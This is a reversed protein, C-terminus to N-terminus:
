SDTKKGNGEEVVAVWNQMLLDAEANTGALLKKFSKACKRLSGRERVRTTKRFTKLAQAAQQLSHLVKDLPKREGAM